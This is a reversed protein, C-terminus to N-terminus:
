ILGVLKFEEIMAVRKPHKKVLEAATKKALAESKECLKGARQMTGASMHYGKRNANKEMMAVAFEIMIQGCQEPYLKKLKKFEQISKHRTKPTNLWNGWPDACIKGAEIRRWLKEYECEEYLKQNVIEAVSPIDSLEELCEDCEDCGDREDRCIEYLRDLWSKKMGVYNGKGSKLWDYLFQKQDPKELLEVAELVLFEDDKILEFATKQEGRKKLIEQKIKRCESIDLHQDVYTELEESHIVKLYFAKYYYWDKM